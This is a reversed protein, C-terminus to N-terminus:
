RREASVAAVRSATVSSPARSARAWGRPAPVSRSSTPAPRRPASGPASDISTRLAPVSSRIRGPQSAPWGRPVSSGRRRRSCGAGAPRGRRADAGACPRSRPSGRPRAAASPRRPRRGARSRTRAARRWRAPSTTRAARRAAPRCRCWPRRAAARRAVVGLHHQARGADVHAALVPAHRHRAHAADLQLLHVDRAVKGRGREEDGRRREHRARLDHQAADPHVRRAGAQQPMRCRIPPSTSTASACPAGAALRHAVDDHAGGLQAAGVDLRRSTGSAISSSGITASSPANASPRVDTCPASSSRRLSDSRMVVTTSPSRPRPARMSAAGSPKMISPVPPSRRRRARRPRRGGAPSAPRPRRARRARPRPRSRSGLRPHRMDPTRPRGRPADGRLTRGSAPSYCLFPRRSGSQAARGRTPPAAACRGGGAAARAQRQGTGAASRAPAPSSRRPRLRRPPPAGRVLRRDRLQRAAAALQQRAM